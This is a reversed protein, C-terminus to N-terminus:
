QVDWSSSKKELSQLVHFMSFDDVSMVALPTKAREPIPPSLPRRRPESSAAHIPGGELAAGADDVGSEADSGENKPDLTM